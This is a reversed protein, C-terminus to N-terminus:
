PGGVMHPWVNQKGKPLTEKKNCQWVHRSGNPKGHGGGEGTWVVRPSLSPRCAPSQLTQVEPYLLFFCLPLGHGRFPQRGFTRYIQYSDTKQNFFPRAPRHKKAGKKLPGTSSTTLGGGGCGVCPATVDGIRQKVDLGQGRIAKRQQGKTPASSFTSKPPPHAQSKGHHRDYSIGEGWGRDREAAM